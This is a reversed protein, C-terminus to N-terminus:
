CSARIEDLNSEMFVKSFLGIHVWAFLFKKIIIIKTLPRQTITARKFYENPM